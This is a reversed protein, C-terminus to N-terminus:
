RIRFTYIEPDQPSAAWGFGAAFLERYYGM